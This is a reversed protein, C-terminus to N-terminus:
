DENNQLKKLKEKEELKKRKLYLSLWSDSSESKCNWLTILSLIPASLFVLVILQIEIKKPWGDNSVLYIVIVFLIVNLIISLIRM